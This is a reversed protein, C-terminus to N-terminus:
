EKIMAIYSKKDFHHALKKNGEVSLATLKYTVEVKSGGKENSSLAVAVTGM